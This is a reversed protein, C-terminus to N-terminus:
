RKRRMRLQGCAADIDNGQSRRVTVAPARPLLLKIFSDIAKESPRRFPCGNWENFPILNIKFPRGETMSSLALADERSDNIGSILIYELTTRTKRRVAFREAADLVENVDGAAPMLRRRVENNTANLSVALGFKLPSAAISDIQEPFGATSVTIRKEGLAFADIENIVSIARGTNEFNLLPDGMGMFVINYRRRPPIHAKKFFLIQNLIEDARLNREFGGSGTACFACGLPCGIQSSICVTFVGRAEMIVSEILHGDDTTFLFKQSKDEKSALSGNVKLSTILFHEDLRTRLAVSLNTMEQFDTAGKQYLWQIIQTARHRKEGLGTVTEYIGNIPLNKINEKVTEYNSM